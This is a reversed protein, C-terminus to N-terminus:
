FESEADGEPPKTNDGDSAQFFDSKHDGEVSKADDVHHAKTTVAGGVGGREASKTDDGTMQTQPKEAQMQPLFQM